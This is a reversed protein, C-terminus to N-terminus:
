LDIQIGLEVVRGPPLGFYHTAPRANRSIFAFLEKRWRAMRSPGGTLLTERSLFYSTQLPETTLGVSMARKMIEPVNPTQQFGFRATLRYFGEPLAELILQESRPVRPVSASQISLLVVKQHLTKNHKIHHLLAPPAGELQPSMFVAPGAVRQLKKSAIDQLLMDLPLAQSAMRRSLERRGDRWTTMAVVIVLAIIVPMFGGDFFKLVNAGFYSFDFLLFLAVLPLVKWKPWQWTLLAVALFVLSTIAMNGTVALGYAAALSTSRQFVLVLALCGVALSFNVGPIYVQGEQQGSTHIVNVRPWLGLQVAQRTLSFAGSILAQSAIVTAATALVVMPYLLWRPVLGYFPNVAREPHDLLLAGQGFYSLLLAPFVVTFWSLRIPRKGFHGLDAYLAEGGTICLTVAGLILFARSFDHAFFRIAHRPDVALLVHPNRAIGAIGLVSIVLFWAAMIPGFVRGIRGTGRRQAIFLVLLIACTIWTIAPEFATTAVELGEVASLVSIAPTIIGDGFLLAAAAIAMLVVLQRLRPAIRDPDSPVLALLAFIGGEGRNDARMIFALYKVSIVVVLSWVVLSLVGLVHPETVEIAHAGHFCERIAYLPSTGIDGYVVGLAGVALPLLRGPTRIGSAQSARAEAV